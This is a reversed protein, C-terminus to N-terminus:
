PKAAVSGLEGMSAEDTVWRPWRQLCYGCCNESGRAIEPNVRVFDGTRSGGRGGGLVTHLVTGGVSNLDPVLCM